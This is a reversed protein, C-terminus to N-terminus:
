RKRIIEVGVASANKLADPKQVRVTASQIRHDELCIEAIRAALTEVLKIHGTCALREIASVISAYCPVTDYDDAEIDEPELADMTINILVPQRKEHEYDYVGISWDLELDTIAIRYTPREAVANVANPPTSGVVHKEAEATRIEEPRSDSVSALDTVIRM